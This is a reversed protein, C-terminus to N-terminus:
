CLPLAIGSKKLPIRGKTESICFGLEANYSESEEDGQYVLLVCRILRGYIFASNKIKGFERKRLIKVQDCLRNMHDMLCVIFGCLLFLPLM